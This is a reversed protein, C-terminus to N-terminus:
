FRDVADPYQKSNPTDLAVFANVAGATMTGVVVYNIRTFQLHDRPFACDLLVAGAIAQATTFVAGTEIAIPATFAADTATQVIAQISTGGAFATAVQVRIRAPTNRDLDRNAGHNIHDTSVAAVTIAQGTAPSVPIPNYRNEADLLM